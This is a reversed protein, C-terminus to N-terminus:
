LVVNKLPVECDSPRRVGLELYTLVVIYFDRILACCQGARWLGRKSAQAMMWGTMDEYLAADIM